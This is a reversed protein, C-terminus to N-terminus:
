LNGDPYPGTNLTLSLSVVDVKRSYATLVAQIIIDSQIPVRNCGSVRYHELSAEPAVGVFGLSPQNGAAIGSVHTGHDTCETYPDSDMRPSDGIQWNDGVLDIGYQIKYGEGMGDGLAPHGYDVGTDVMAITLGRGAIGADHLDKVGTMGHLISANVPRDLTNAGITSDNRSAPLYSQPQWTKVVGSVSDLCRTYYDGHGDANEIDLSFGPFLENEFEQRFHLKASQACPADHSILKKVRDLDKVSSVEVIYQQLSLVGLYFTSSVLCTYPWM